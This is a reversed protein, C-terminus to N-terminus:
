WSVEVTLNGLPLYGQRALDQVIEQIMYSGRGTEKFKELQRDNYESLKGTVNFDHASNNNWEEDAILEYDNVGYVQQIINNLDDSDIRYATHITLKSHAEERTMFDRRNTSLLKEASMVNFM